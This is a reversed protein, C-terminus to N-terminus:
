SIEIVGVNTDLGGVVTIPTETGTKADKTATATYGAGYPLNTITFEGNADTTAQYCHDSIVIEVIAGEVVLGSGATTTGLTTGDFINTVAAFTETTIVTNGTVGPIIATLVAANAAFAAITVYENAANIGDTGNVATVLGAQATAVDSGISIEGVASVPGTVFTYVTDGITMTDGATPQTDMTLTGQAAVAVGDTVIGSVTGKAKPLYIKFPPNDLATPGYHAKLEMPIVGEAADTPNITFGNTNVVNYMQIIVPDVFGRVKGIFTINEIYDSDCIYNKAEIIDYFESTSTEVGALALSVSKLQTELINPSMMVEWKDIVM